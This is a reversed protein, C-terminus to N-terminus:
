KDKVCRVSVLGEKSTFDWDPYKNSYNLEFRYTQRQKDFGNTSAEGNRWKTLILIPWFKRLEWFSFVARYIFGGLRGFLIGYIFARMWLSAGM